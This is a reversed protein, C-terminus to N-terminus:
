VLIFVIDQHSLLQKVWIRVRGSRRGWIHVPGLGALM